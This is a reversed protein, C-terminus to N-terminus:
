RFTSQRLFRREGTAGEWRQRGSISLTTCLYDSLLHPTSQFLPGAARLTFLECVEEPAWKHYLLWADQVPDTGGAAQGTAINFVIQM